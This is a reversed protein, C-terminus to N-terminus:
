QHFHEGTFNWGGSVASSFMKGWAPGAHPSAEPETIRCGFGSTWEDRLCQTCLM